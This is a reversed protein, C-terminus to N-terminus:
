GRHGKRYREFAALEIRVLRQGPGTRVSELLGAAIARRVTKESCQELDAVEKVTLRRAPEAPRNAKRTM